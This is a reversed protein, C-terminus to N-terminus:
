GSTTSRRSRERAVLPLLYWLAVYLAAVGAALGAAWGAGSVVHVVLLVAGVVSVLLCALGLQALV